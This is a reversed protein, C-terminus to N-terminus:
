NTIVTVQKYIWFENKDISDWQELTGDFHIVELNSCGALAEMSIKELTQPLYLDTISDCEAFIDRGLISYTQGIHVEKLNRCENFAWLDIEYEEDGDGELGLQVTQLDSCCSFAQMGLFAGKSIILEELSECEMFAYDGFHTLTKPFEVEELNVCGKFAHNEIRKVGRPIKVSVIDTNGQFGGIATVPKDRHTRPIEVDEEDGRYEVITYSERDENLKFKFDPNEAPGCSSLLAALTAMILMITFLRKM